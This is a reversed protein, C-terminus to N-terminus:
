KFKETEFINMLINEMEIANHCVKIRDFVAKANVFLKSYHVWYEKTKNLANLEFTSNSIINRFLEMAFDEFHTKESDDTYSYNGTIKETLFPDMFVGRGLMFENINPFRSKIREFDEVSFIDGSYIIKHNIKPLINEFTELDVKGDYLQVGIRPHICVFQLPYNNLIPILSEIELPSEYGLRIKVSIEPHPNNFISDLISDIMEPFPLMGSGRKRRAVMPAPCGLNWNVEQYGLKLLHKNMLVFQDAKNGIVQPITKLAQNKEPYLDKFHSYKVKKGETLTTFPAIATDFGKFYKIYTNRFVQETFGLMPALWLVNNEM